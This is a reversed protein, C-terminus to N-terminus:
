YKGPTGGNGVYRNKLANIADANVGQGSGYNMAVGAEAAAGAAAHFLHQGRHRSLGSGACARLGRRRLAGTDASRHAAARM